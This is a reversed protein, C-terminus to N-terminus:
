KMQDIRMGRRFEEEVEDPRNENGEQIRMRV